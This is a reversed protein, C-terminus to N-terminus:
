SWEQLCATESRLPEWHWNWGQMWDHLAWTIHDGARAHHHFYLFEQWTCHEICWPLKGCTDGRPPWCGHGWMNWCSTPPFGRLGPFISRAEWFSISGEGWPDDCTPVASSAAWVLQEDEGDEVGPLGSAVLTGLAECDCAEGLALDMVKGSSTSCRWSSIFLAILWKSVVWAKNSAWQCLSTDSVYVARQWFSALAEPAMLSTFAWQMAEIQSALAKYTAAMLSASVVWEVEMMSTSPGWMVATLFASAAQM